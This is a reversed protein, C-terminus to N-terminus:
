FMLKFLNKVCTLFISNTHPSIPMLVLLPIPHSLHFVPLPQCRHRQSYM